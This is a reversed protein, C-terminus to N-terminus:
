LARTPKPMRTARKVARAILTAAITFSAHSFLLLPYYADILAIRPCLLIGAPSSSSSDSSSAEDDDLADADLVLLLDVVVPPPPPDSANPALDFATGSAKLLGNSFPFPLAQLPKKNGYAHLVM